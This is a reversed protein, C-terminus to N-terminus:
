SEDPEPKGHRRVWEEVSVQGPVILYGCRTLVPTYFDRLREVHKAAQVDGDMAKACLKLLLLDVTALRRARGDVKLKHKEQAFEQVITKINRSGKPRGRRNGPKGPGFRHEVPPRKHGVVTKDDTSM